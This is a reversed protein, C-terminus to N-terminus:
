GAQRCLNALFRELKEFQEGRSCGQRAKLPLPPISGGSEKEAIKEALWAAIERPENSVMGAERERIMDAVVGETSGVSLIPRRAGLYEFFKGAIVSKEGPDDWRLLLLIDARRQLEVSQGYPVPANLEVVDELGHRRRLEDAYELDPGFFQIRVKVAAGGLLGVARFLPEPDRKEAYMAGLCRITVRGDAPVPSLDPEPTEEPFDRPDFGNMVLLTPKGYKRELLEAWPATVTVLGAASGLVRREHREELPRRWGPADYYPHDVWLDRLECVWPIGAQRGLRAAVINSTQPPASALIVDPRWEAILAGGERLAWPLWGIFSDPWCVVDLYFDRLPRLARKLQSKLGAGRSRGPAAPTPGAGNESSAPRTGSAAARGGRLRAVIREPIERVDRTETYLIKEPPIEPEIVPPFPLGEQTLVRVDHGRALLFAAFKNARTAASPANPPFYGAVILIKM